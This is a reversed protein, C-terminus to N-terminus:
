RRTAEQAHPQAPFADTDVKSTVLLKAADLIGPQLANVGSSHERLGSEWTSISRQSSRPGAEWDKVTARRAEPSGSVEPARAGDHWVSPPEELECGPTGSLRTETM